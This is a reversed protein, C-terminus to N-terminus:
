CEQSWTISIYICTNPSNHLAITFTHIYSDPLSLVTEVRESYVSGSCLVEHAQVAGGSYSDAVYLCM